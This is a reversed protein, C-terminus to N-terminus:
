FGIKPSGNIFKINASLKLIQKLSESNINYFNDAFTNADSEEETLNLTCNYQYRHRLEHFLTHVISAKIFDENNYLRLINFAFIEILNFASCEYGLNIPNKKRDIISSYIKKINDTKRLYALPM